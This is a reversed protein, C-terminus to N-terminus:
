PTARRFARISLEGRAEATPVSSRHEDEFASRELNSTSGYEGAPVNADGRLEDRAEGALAPDDWGEDADVGDLAEREERQEAFGAAVAVGVEGHQEDEAGDM